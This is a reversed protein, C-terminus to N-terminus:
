DKIEIVFHLALSVVFGLVIRNGFLVKVRYGIKLIKELHEPVKYDFLRNVQKALVDVVVGAIM